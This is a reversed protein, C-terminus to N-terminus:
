ATVNEFSGSDLVSGDKIKYIHDCSKLTSLRHAIIIFTITKKLKYVTDMINQESEIDLASTAEDFVILSPNRYLARAIGVRQRQGGSLRTGREGMMTDLGDPLREVFDELNADRLCKLITDDNAESQEIGFAVNSRLSSDSLYIEQPVYGVLEQWSHQNLFNTIDKGDLLIRGKRPKLLGLAIDVITSKGSGSEGIVGVCSGKQLNISVNTLSDQVANPYAYFVKELKFSENFEFCENNESNEKQQKWRGLEKQLVRVSPWGYAISQSSNIIRAVSPMVRVLGFAIMGLKPMLTQTNSERSLGVVLIALGLVALTEFLLRPMQQMAYQKQGATSGLRTNETFNKNIFSNNNILKLAKIGDFGEQLCQIRMGERKQRENGWDKVRESTFRHFLWGLLGVFLIAFACAFPEVYLLLFVVALLVMCESIIILLPQMVYGVFSNVEAITNRLLESSNTRLFFEYPKALYNEFLFSSTEVQVDFTFKSHLNVQFALYLNKFIFLSVVLCLGILTFNSNEGFTNLLKYWISNEDVLEPRILIEIMPMIMGIGIVELGVGITSVILVVWFFSQSKKNLVDYILTFKKV